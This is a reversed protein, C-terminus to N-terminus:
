VHGAIRVGTTVERFQVPLVQVHFLSVSRKRVHPGLQRLSKRSASFWCVRLFVGRQADFPSNGSGPKTGSVLEYTSTVTRVPARDPVTPTRLGPEQPGGEDHPFSLRFPQTGRGVLDSPTVVGVISVLRSTM